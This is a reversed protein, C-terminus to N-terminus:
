VCIFNLVCFMIMSNGHCETRVQYAMKLSPQTLSGRSKVWQRMEQSGRPCGFSRWIFVFSYQMSRTRCVCAQATERTTRVSVLATWAGAKPTHFFSGRSSLRGGNQVRSSLNIQRPLVAFAVQPPTLPVAKPSMLKWNPSGQVLCCNLMLLNKHCAKCELKGKGKEKNVCFQFNQLGNQTKFLGSNRM